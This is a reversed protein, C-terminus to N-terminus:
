WDLIGQAGMDAETRVLASRHAALSKADFYVRTINNCEVMYHRDSRSGHDTIQANTVGDCRPDRSAIQAALRRERNITPVLKGWQSVVDPYDARTYPDVAIPDITGTKSPDADEASEMALGRKRTALQDADKYNTDALSTTTVDAPDAPASTTGAPAPDAKAAEPSSGSCSVLFISILGIAAAGASKHRMSTEGELHRCTTLPRLNVIRQLVSRLSASAFRDGSCRSSNRFGPRRTPSTFGNSTM